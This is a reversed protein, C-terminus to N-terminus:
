NLTPAATAPIVTRPGFPIVLEGGPKVAVLGYTSWLRAEYAWQIAYHEDIDSEPLADHRDIGAEFLGSSPCNGRYARMLVEFHVNVNLNPNILQSDSPTNIYWDVHEEASYRGCPCRWSPRTITLIM